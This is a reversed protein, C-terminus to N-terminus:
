VGLSSFNATGYKTPTVVEFRDWVNAATSYPNYEKQLSIPAVLFNHTVDFKQPGSSTYGVVIDEIGNYLVQNGPVTTSSGNGIKVTMTGSHVKNLCNIVAGIPVTSVNKLTVSYHLYAVLYEADRSGSKGDGFKFSEKMLPFVESAIGIRDERIVTPETPDFESPKYAVNLIADKFLGSLPEIDVTDAFLGGYVPHEEGVEFTFGSITTNNATLLYTKLAPADAWACKIRRVASNTGSNSFSAKYGDDLVACAIGNITQCLEGM